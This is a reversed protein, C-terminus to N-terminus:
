PGFAIIRILLEVLFIWALIQDFLEVLPTPNSMYFISNVFALLILISVIM